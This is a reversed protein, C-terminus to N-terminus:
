RIPTASALHVAMQETYRVSGLPGASQSMDVTESQSLILGNPSVYYDNPNSGSEAGSFTLDLRTHTASVAKGGIDVRAPGVVQGAFVVTQNASHCTTKWREGAHANPPVLYTDTPCHITDTTKTGAIEEYSLSATITYAGDGLPCEVIGEMHQVLPEWRDTACKSSSDTVIMDTADPFSRAIGGFSLQEGGTTRYRYVGAAPLAATPDAQRGAQDQRYLRLAQRLNVPTEPNRLVFFWVGAALTVIILAFGVGFLLLRHHAAWTWAPM